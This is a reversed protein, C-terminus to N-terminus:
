ILSKQNIAQAANLVIFWAKDCEAPYLNDLLNKIAPEYFPMVGLLM